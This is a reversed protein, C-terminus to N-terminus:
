LSEETAKLLEEMLARKIKPHRKQFYHWFREPYSQYCEHPHADAFWQFCTAEVDDQTDANM